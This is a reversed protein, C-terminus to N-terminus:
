EVTKEDIWPVGKKLPAKTGLLRPQEGPRRVFTGAKPFQVAGTIRWAIRAGPHFENSIDIATQPETTHLAEALLDKDDVAVQSISYPGDNSMQVVFEASEADAAAAAMLKTLATASMPQSRERSAGRKRPGKGTKRTAKRTAKRTPKSKRTTRKRSAAM